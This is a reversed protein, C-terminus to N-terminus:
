ERSTIELSITNAINFALAVPVANGIWRGVTKFGPFKGPEFFKYDRPFSQLLAAERLSIARDQEPHGFRGNGFGYCQTTITPAPQDWSMRGYVGGYGKGKDKNHCSAVLHDPWDRWTGGPVSRRIRDKNLPSLKSARHMPDLPDTEGDTLPPLHSIANKVTAEANRQSPSLTVKRKKAGIVVLRKRRQPVGYFSCDVIVYSCIYRASLVSIFEEFVSGSKYNLVGAVNEMTVYDADVGVALEAFRTLLEWRGDSKGKKYTSFPQCPACGVLVTPRSGTFRSRIEDASIQDVDRNVFRSDNNNEFAYRCSEDVDYGASVKFGACKFGSSIGGIGCFLDVVEGIPEPNRRDMSRSVCTSHLKFKRWKYGTGAGAV